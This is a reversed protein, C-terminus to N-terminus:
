LRARSSYQSVCRFGVSYYVTAPDLDVRSSARLRSPYFSWSGGRLVRYTGSSPGTPNREPSISYYDEDYWDACWEWVNGAMDYLGYGNPAFSGVPSTYRYGDETYNGPDYNARYIGGADPEEDGWPYRKGVMGGRAAKEWEAETPLRKGSWEAYATADHWSVRVVPHDPVNFDPDDWYRPAEHGTADMFKQYQATTVEYVDIYFANIYVTHVPLEDDWGENFADGMQFEGAPILVMPAGDDGTITDGDPINSDDNGCGVMFIGLILIIILIRSLNIM